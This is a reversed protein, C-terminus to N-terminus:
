RQIVWRKTPYRWGEGQLSVLYLGNSLQSLDYQQEHLGGDLQREMLLTGQMSHVRLLGGTQPIEAKLKLSGESPNAFDFIGTLPIGLDNGVIVIVTCRTEVNM